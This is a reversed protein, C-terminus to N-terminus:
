CTQRILLTKFYWHIQGSIIIWLSFFKSINKVEYIEMGKELLLSGSLFSCVIGVYLKYM